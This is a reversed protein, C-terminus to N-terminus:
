TAIQFALTNMSVWGQKKSRVTQMEMRVARELYRRCLLTVFFFLTFFCICYLLKEVYDVLMSHRRGEYDEILSTTTVVVAGRRQTDVSALRTRVRNDATSWRVGGPM